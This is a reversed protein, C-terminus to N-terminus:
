PRVHAVIRDVDNKGATGPLAHEGQAVPPALHAAQLFDISLVDARVARADFRARELVVMAISDIHGDPPLGLWDRADPESIVTLMLAADAVTRM